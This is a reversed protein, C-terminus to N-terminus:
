KKLSYNFSVQYIPLFYDLEPPREYRYYVLKLNVLKNIEVGWAISYGHYIGNTVMAPIIEELQSPNTYCGIYRFALWSIGIQRANNREWAGTQFYAGAAIVTNLFNVPQGAFPDNFSGKRFGTLLREGLHYLFGARTLRFDRKRFFILGEVAINALGSFPNMFNTVLVDNSRQFAPQSVQFNNSSVGSFLSLPVAFKGPEGIFVRIFRASANVQGSNLIDIFGSTFLEPRYASDPRQALGRSLSSNGDGNLANGPLQSASGLCFCLIFVPMLVFYISRVKCVNKKKVCEHDRTISFAGDWFFHDMGMYPFGSRNILIGGM